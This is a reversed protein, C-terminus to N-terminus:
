DEDEPAFDEPKLPECDYDSLAPAAEPPPEKVPVSPKWLPDDPGYDHILWGDSVPMSIQLLDCAASLSQIAQAETDECIQIMVDRKLGDPQHTGIAAAYMCDNNDPDVQDVPMRILCLEWHEPIASFPQNTSM